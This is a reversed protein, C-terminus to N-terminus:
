WVTIYGGSRWWLIIHPKAESHFQAHAPQLPRTQIWSGRLAICDALGATVLHPQCTTVQGFFCVAWERAVSSGCGWSRLVRVRTAQPLLHSCNYNHRGAAVVACVRSPPSTQRQLSVVAFSRFLFVLFRLLLLELHLSCTPGPSHTPTAVNTSYIVHELM